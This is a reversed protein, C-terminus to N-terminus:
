FGTHVLSFLIGLFIGAVLKRQIRHHLLETRLRRFDEIGRQGEVTLQQILIEDVVGVTRKIATRGERRSTQLFGCTVKTFETVHNTAGVRQGVRDTRFFGCVTFHIRGVTESFGRLTTAQRATITTTQRTSVLDGLLQARFGTGTFEIFFCRDVAQVFGAAIIHRDVVHESLGILQRLLDTRFIRRIASDIRRGAKSFCQHALTAEGTVATAIATITTVTTGTAIGAVGKGGQQFM